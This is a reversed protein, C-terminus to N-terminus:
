IIEAVVFTSGGVYILDENQAYNRAAKLAKAVSPYAEGKFGKELFYKQLTVEDLGRKVNPKCIYYTADAPLLDYISDLNKDNVVGFVIHLSKFTEAKVQHMTYTLGEKNHATDCIIKPEEQM